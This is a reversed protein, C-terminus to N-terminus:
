GGARKRIEQEYRRSLAEPNTRAMTALQGAGISMRRLLERRVGTESNARTEMRSAVDEFGDAADRAGNPDLLNYRQHLGYIEAGMALMAKMVAGLDEESLTTLDIEIGLNAITDVTDSQARAVDRDTLVLVPDKSPAIAPQAGAVPWDM